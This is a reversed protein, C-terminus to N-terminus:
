NLKIEVKVIGCVVGVNKNKKRKEHFDLSYQIPLLHKDLYFNCVFAM